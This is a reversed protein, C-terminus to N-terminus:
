LASRKALLTLAAGHLQGNRWAGVVVEDNVALCTQRNLKAHCLSCLSGIGVNYALTGGISDICCSVAYLEELIGAVLKHHCREQLVLLHTAHMEEVDGITEVFGCQDFRLSCTQSFGVGCRGHSSACLGVGVAYREAEEVALREGGECCLTHSLGDHLVDVSVVQAAHAFAIARVGKGELGVVFSGVCGDDESIGLAVLLAALGDVHFFAFVLNADRM